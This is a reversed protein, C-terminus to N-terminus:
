RGNCRRALHEAFATARDLDHDDPRGKNIGGIFGFPGVTNSGAAPSRISYRFGKSELRNRVSKNYGLLPIERAGSHLFYAPGRPVGGGRGV